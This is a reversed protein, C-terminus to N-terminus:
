FGEYDFAGMMLLLTLHAPKNTHVPHHWENQSEVQPLVPKDAILGVLNPICRMRLSASATALNKEDM